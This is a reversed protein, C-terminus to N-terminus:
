NIDILAISSSKLLQFAGSPFPEVEEEKKPRNNSNNNNKLKKKINLKNKISSFEKKKKKIGLCLVTTSIRGLLLTWLSSCFSL